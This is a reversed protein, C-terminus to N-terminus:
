LGELLSELAADRRSKAAEDEAAVDVAKGETSEAIGAVARGAERAAGAAAEAAEFRVYDVVTRGQSEATAIASDLSALRRALGDSLAKTEALAATARQLRTELGEVGEGGRLKVASAYLRDKVGEDSPDESYEEKLRAIRRKTEAIDNRIRSVDAERSRVSALAQRAASEVKAREAKMESLKMRVTEGRTDPTRAPGDDSLAADVAAFPSPAPQEAPASAAGNGSQLQLYLAICIAALVAVLLVAVVGGSRTNRSEILATM